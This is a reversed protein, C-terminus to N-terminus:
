DTRDEDDHMWFKPNNPDLLFEAHGREDIEKLASARRSRSHKDIVQDGKAVVRAHHAQAEANEARVKLKKAQNKLFAIRAIFALVTLMAASIALGYAKAKALFM